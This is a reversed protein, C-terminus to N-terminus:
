SIPLADSATAFNRDHVMVSPTIGGGAFRTFHGELYRALILNPTVRTNVSSEKEADM